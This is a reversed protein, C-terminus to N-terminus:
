SGTIVAYMTSAILLPNYCRVYYKYNTFPLDSVCDLHLKIRRTIDYKHQQAVDLIVDKNNTPTHTAFREKTMRVYVFVARYKHTDIM